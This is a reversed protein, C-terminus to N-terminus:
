RQLNAFLPSLVEVAENIGLPVGRWLVFSEVAQGILMGSGDAIHRCGKERAWIMFATEVGYVMDYIATNRDLCQPNLAPVEGSLSASTGNIILDFPQEDVLCFPRARVKGHDTYGAFDHVLAEARELTRNAIWVEAPTEQLLPHLVGRVAGGAGLLLIRKDAISWGLRYRLDAVLGAGDTNDGVITGDEKKMLFNVAGAIRARASLVDAYNFADQKFPVTVNLGKGGNAFFRKAAETFDDLAVCQKEYILRQSTKKALIRHIEPSKSQAVPNGFVAYRDSGRNTANM